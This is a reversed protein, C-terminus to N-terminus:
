PHGRVQPVFVRISKLRFKSNDGVFTEPLVPGTWDNKESSISSYVLINPAEPGTWRFERTIAEKNDIYRVTRDPL